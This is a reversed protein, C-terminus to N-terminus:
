QGRRIKRYFRILNLPLPGRYQAFEDIIVSRLMEKQTPTATDYRGELGILEQIKGNDYEPSSHFVKSQLAAYKPAFHNELRWALEAGGVILVVFGAIIILVLFITKM